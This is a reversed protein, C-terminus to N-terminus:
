TKCTCKPPDHPYNVPVEITFNYVGGQWLCVEKKLDVTLEFNKLDEPNFKCKAHAPIDLEQIEGQLRLEAASKKPKRAEVVEGNAKKEEDLKKEEERRKGEKKLKIM